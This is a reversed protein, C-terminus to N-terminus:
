LKGYTIYKDDDFVSAGRTFIKTIGDIDKDTGQPNPDDLEGNIISVLKTYIDNFLKNINEETIDEGVRYFEKYVDEVSWYEPKLIRYVEYEGYYKTSGDRVRSYIKEKHKRVRSLLRINEALAYMVNKMSAIHNDAYESAKPEDPNVASLIQKVTVEPAATMIGFDSDLAYDLNKMLKAINDENQTDRPLGNERYDWYFFALRQYAENFMFGLSHKFIVNIKDSVLTKYADILSQPTLDKGKLSFKVTATSPDYVNVEDITNRESLWRGIRPWRNSRYLKPRINIVDTIVKLEEQRKTLLNIQADIYNEQYQPYDSINSKISNLETLLINLQAKFSDVDEINNPNDKFWNKLHFEKFSSTLNERFSIDWIYFGFPYIDMMYIATGSWLMFYYADLM